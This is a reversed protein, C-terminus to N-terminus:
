LSPTDHRRREDFNEPNPPSHLWESPRSGKKSTRDGSAPLSPRPCSPVREFADLDLPPLASALESEIAYAALLDDSSLEGILRGQEIVYVHSLGAKQMQLLVAYADADPETTSRSRLDSLVDAVRAQDWADSPVKRVDQASVTGILFGNRVVPLTKVRHRYFGDRVLTEISVTPSVTRPQSNMFECACHGELTQRLFLQEYSSAAANRLFLGIVCWWLGAVLNGAFAFFIGAGILVLGFAVGVRASTRTASRLDRRWAWLAARLVRGGDLPFAPLLNFVALVVNIWALYGVLVTVAVPLGLAAGLTDIAFFAGGIAFSTIPGVIAIWFESKASPPDRDMEAVGGFLFLTIGRMPLGFRRAVLSHSLEHVVISAFLGIAGILGLLWYEGRPLGEYARPFYGTALSWTVLITLFIWSPDINM